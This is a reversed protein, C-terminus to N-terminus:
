TSYRIGYEVLEWVMDITGVMMQTVIIGSAIFGFVTVGILTWLPAWGRGTRRICVVARGIPYALSLFIWAWHFPRDIGRSVLVARDRYAFWIQLGFIVWTSLMLVWWLVSFLVTNGPFMMDLTYVGGRSAAEAAEIYPHIDFVMRWPMALTLVTSVVPLLIILWIWVTNTDVGPSRRPEDRVPSAVGGPAGAPPWMYGTWVAGDWWRQVGPVAPDPYWGAPTQQPTSM